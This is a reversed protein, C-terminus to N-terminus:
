KTLEKWQEECIIPINALRAYERAIIREDKNHHTGVNYNFFDHILIYGYDSDTYLEIRSEGDDAMWVKVGEVTHTLDDLTAPCVNADSKSKSCYLTNDITKFWHLLEGRDSERAYKYQMLERETTESSLWYWWGEKLEPAPPDPVVTDRRDPHGVPPYGDLRAELITIRRELEDLTSM